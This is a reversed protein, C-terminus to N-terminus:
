ITVFITQHTSYSNRDGVFGPSCPCMSCGCHKNWGWKVDKLLEYKDPHQEKIYDMVKPIVFKKYLKYPESGRGMINEIITQNEVWIYIKDHNLKPEGSRKEERRIDFKKIQIDM